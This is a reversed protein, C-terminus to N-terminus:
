AEVQVWGKRPTTLGTGGERTHDPWYQCDGCGSKSQLLPEEASMGAGYRQRFTAGARGRSALPLLSGASNPGPCEDVMHVQRQGESGTWGETGELGVKERPLFQSFM